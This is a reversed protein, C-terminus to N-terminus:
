QQIQESKILTFLKIPAGTEEKPNKEVPLHVYVSNTKVTACIKLSNVIQLIEM